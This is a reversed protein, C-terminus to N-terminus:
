FQNNYAGKIMFIDDFNQEMIKLARMDKKNKTFVVGKKGTMFNELTLQKQSNPKTVNKFWINNVTVIYSNNTKEVKYTANVPQKLFLPIKRRKLDTYDWNLHYNILVGNLNNDDIKKVQFGGQPTNYSRLKTELTNLSVPLNYERQFYMKGNRINFHGVESDRYPLPDFQSFASFSLSCLIIVLVKKM